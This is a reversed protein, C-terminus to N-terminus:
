NTRQRYKCIVLQGSSKRLWDTTSDQWNNLEKDMALMIQMLSDIGYKTIGHNYRLFYGGTLFAAAKNHM